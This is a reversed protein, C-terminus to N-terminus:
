DARTEFDLAKRVQFSTHLDIVGEKAEVRYMPQIRVLIYLRHFGIGCNLFKGIQM